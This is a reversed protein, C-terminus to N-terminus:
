QASSRRTSGPVSAIGELVAVTEPTEIQIITFGSNDVRLVYEAATGYGASAPRAMKDCPSQTRLITGVQVAQHHAFRSAGMYM